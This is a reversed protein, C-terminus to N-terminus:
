DHTAEPSARGEIYQQDGGADLWTRLVAVLLRVEPESLYISSERDDDAIVAKLGVATEYVRMHNGNGRERPNTSCQVPM